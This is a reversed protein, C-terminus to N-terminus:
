ISPQNKNKIGWYGGILAFPFIVFLFIREYIDYISFDFNDAILKLLVLVIGTIIIHFVDNRTSIKATIYGGVGSSIAISIAVFIYYRIEKASSVSADGIMELNMFLLILNILIVLLLAVLVGSLISLFNRIIEKAPYDRM